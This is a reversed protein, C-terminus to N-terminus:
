ECVEIQRAGVSVKEITDNRAKEMQQLAKQTVKLAADSKKKEEELTVLREQLYLYINIHNYSQFPNNHTHHRYAIITIYLITSSCSLQRICWEVHFLVGVTYLFVGKFGKFGKLRLSLSLSPSVQLEDKEVEFRSFTGREQEQAKRLRDQLEIEQEKSHSLQSELLRVKMADARACKVDDLLKANSVKFHDALAKLRSCEGDLMASSRLNNALTDAGTISADHARKEADELQASLQQYHYDLATTRFNTYETNMHIGEQSLLFSAGGDSDDSAGSTNQFGTINSNIMAATVGGVGEQYQDQDQGESTGTVSTGDELTDTNTHNLNTSTSTSTRTSFAEHEQEGAQQVTLQLERWLEARQEEEQEVRRLAEDLQAQTNSLEQQSQQFQEQLLGLGTSEM